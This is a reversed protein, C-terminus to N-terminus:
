WPLVALGGGRIWKVAAVLGFGARNSTSGTVPSRIVLGFRFRRSPDLTAPRNPDAQGAGNGRPGRAAVAARPGTKARTGGAGSLGTTGGPRYIGHGGAPAARGRPDDSLRRAVSPAVPRPPQRDGGPRCPRGAGAAWQPFP